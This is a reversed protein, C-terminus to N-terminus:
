KQLVQIEYVDTIQWKKDVKQLAFELVLAEDNRQGDAGTAKIYATTVAKAQPLRIYEVKLDKLEVSLNKYYKGAMMLYTPVDDKAVSQSIEYSPIEIQCNRAIKEQVHKIRSAMTIESEAPAWTMEEALSRLHKKVARAEWDVFLLLVAAIAAAIILGAALYKKTVM